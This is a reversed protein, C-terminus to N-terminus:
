EKSKRGVLYGLLTSIVATGGVYAWPHKHASEDVKTAADKTVTTVKDKAAGLSESTASKIETFAKKLEPKTEGLIKKLFHFDKKIMDRIEDASNEGAENLAQLAHRISIIKDENIKHVKQAEMKGGNELINEV